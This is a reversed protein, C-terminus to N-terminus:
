FRGGCWRFSAGPNCCGVVTGKEGRKVMYVHRPEVYDLIFDSHTSIIIQKQKSYLKILEVISTLLGHHVCVEPEEILLVSSRDTIVYFLLTITKFTGESLQSPSLKNRGVVFQPVVIIKDRKRPQVEGGSKVTYQISSATLETFNLEDILGIGRPGVVNLFEEYVTSNRASYLDYLFQSHGRLNIARTRTGSTEVEFSAPCLSPNTFQSASYYKLDRLLCYINELLLELAKPLLDVAGYPTKRKGSFYRLYQNVGDTSHRMIWLPFIYQKSTGTVSKSYWKQQSSVIVDRNNSNTNLQIDALLNCSKSGGSFVAKLKSTNAAVAADAHSDHIAMSRLLVLANLITTKGSGNPGILISLDPQLDVETELCSRYETVRLTKVTM